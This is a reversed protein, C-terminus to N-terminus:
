LDETKRYLDATGADAFHEFRTHVKEQRSKQLHPNSEPDSAYIPCDYCGKQPCQNSKYCQRRVHHYLSDKHNADSSEMRSVHMPTHARWQNNEKRDRGFHRHDTRGDDGNLSDRAVELTQLREFGVYHMCNVPCTKVAAEVDPIRGRQLFSRARGDELMQFSAPAALTCQTCGICSEEDIFVYDGDQLLLPTKKDQALEVREHSSKGHFQWDGQSDKYWGDPTSDEVIECEDLLSPAADHTVLRSTEATTALAALQAKRTAQIPSVLGHRKLDRWVASLDSSRDMLVRNLEREVQTATFNLPQQQRATRPPPGMLAEVYLHELGLSSAMKGQHGYKSLVKLVRPEHKGVSEQLSQRMWTTVALADWVRPPADASTSPTTTAHQEFITQVSARLFSTAGWGELTANWQVLQRVNYEEEWTMEALARGQSILLDQPVEQCRVLRAVEQGEDELSQMVAAGTRDVERQVVAQIEETPSLIHSLSTQLWEEEPSLEAPPTEYDQMRMAARALVDQQFLDQSDVPRNEQASLGTWDDAASWNDSSGSSSSLATAFNARRLRTSVSTTTWAATTTCACLLLSGAGVVPPRYFVVRM